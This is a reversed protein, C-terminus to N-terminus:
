GNIGCLIMKRSKLHLRYTPDTWWDGLIVKMGKFDYVKKTAPDKQKEIKKFPDDKKKKKAASLPALFVLMVTLLVFGRRLTNKM